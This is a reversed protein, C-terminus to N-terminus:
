GSPARTISGAHDPGAPSTNWPAEAAGIATDASISYLGADAYRAVRCCGGVRRLPTNKHGLLRDKRDDCGHGEDRCNRRLALIVPWQRRSVSLCDDLRRARGAM